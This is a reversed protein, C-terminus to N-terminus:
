FDLLRLSMFEEDLHLGAVRILDTEKAYPQFGVSMYLNRAAINKTVVGLMLYQLDPITKARAIVAQLLAKGIGVGRAEPSVYLGWIDAKHKKKVGERRRFGLMGVLAPNFAGHVFARDSCQLQLLVEDRPKAIAEEYTVGYAETEEKLAQLRLQWFSEFDSETLTRIFTEVM